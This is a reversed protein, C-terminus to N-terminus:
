VPRVGTENIEEFGVEEEADEEAFGYTGSEARIDEVGEETCDELDPMEEGSSTRITLDIPYNSKMNFSGEPKGEPSIVPIEKRKPRPLTLEVKFGDDKVPEIKGVEPLRRSALFKAISLILYGDCDKGKKIEDMMVKEVYSISRPLIRDLLYYAKRMSKRTDLLNKGIKPPLLTDKLEKDLVEIKKFEDTLVKPLGETSHQYKEV